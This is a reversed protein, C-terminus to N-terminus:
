VLVEPYNTELLQLKDDIRAFSAVLTSTSSASGHTAYLRVVDTGLQKDYTVQIKGGIHWGNATATMGSAKSGIRSTQGRHGQVIGYFHAM